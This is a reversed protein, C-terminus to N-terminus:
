RDAALVAAQHRHGVTEYGVITIVPALAVLILCLGFGGGSAALVVAAVLAVLAGGFLLYHFRDVSHVLYSYLFFVALLFMLTPVAVTLVAGQTSLRAEGQALRGAVRLGAGVGPIAAYIFIHGYGWGFSRERHRALVLGSPVTFYIWWLAFSLGVGASVIMIAEGSWGQKEVVASVSAVTGLIVEGLAIIVLLGYREAIHHPHWPTGGARNESLFVGGVDLFVVVMLAPVFLWWPRDRLFLLAVWGTQSVALFFVYSLAVRRHDPDQRAVRLWQTLVAVRMVVYGAVMLENNVAGGEDISSFMPPLGLALVIVGVMQVMTTVRYFWDDTDFASAFWSFGIWAWVVAFMAFGFGGLAAGVHGAALLQATQESAVGFAVVLTLDFLLELPTATRHVEDIPRGSMRRIRHDLGTSASTTTM